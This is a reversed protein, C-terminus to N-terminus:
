PSPGAAPPPAAGVILVMAMGRAGHYRCVFRYVGPATFRITRFTGPFVDGTDVDRPCEACTATHTVRSNNVFAVAGDPSIRVGAPRFRYSGGAQVMEVKRGTPTAPLVAFLAAFAAAAAVLSYKLVRSM